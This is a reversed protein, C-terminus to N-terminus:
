ATPLTFYFTAGEGPESEVWIRGGHREVIKKCIALGIGTGPYEDGKHLRQFIKFIRDFYQPDIGLGNDRVSFVWQDEDQQADIHVRPPETGRFKVANDILHHFLQMIQNADASVAPLDGRTVMANNEHILPQLGNIVSDVAASCDTPMFTRGHKGIHAYAIQGNILERMRKAGDVAYSIFEDADQGIKGEYRRQLLQLYSVISRVPEQLHHSSVFFFQNLEANSSSLEAAKQALAEEARKREALEKQAAEYLRANAIAVAASVALSEALTQDEMGFRDPETDAIELVGIVSREVHLPVCLISRLALGTEQDVATLHREDTLADPVNLSVQNEAVWGAIGEGRKLRWGRVGDSRPGSAERCVLEGTERDLLWISCAAVELLQTAEQLLIGLVGELDITSTLAQNARNLLTLERNRQQLIEEIQKRNTIDRTIGVLRITEGAADALPIKTNSIWIRRGDQTTFPVENGILPRGSRLISQEEDYARQANKNPFFDFDGKGIAEQPDSIGLLEAQARNVRVFRSEADKFYIFDPISDMLTHLLHEEQILERTKTELQRNTEGAKKLASSWGQDYSWIVIGLCVVALLFDGGETLWYHSGSPDRIDHTIWGLSLAVGIATYTLISLAGGIIAARPGILVFVLVPLLVMWIRGSGSLGVKHLLFAGLSWNLILLLWARVHYGLGRWFTAAVAILWGAIFPLMDTLRELPSMGTDELGIYLMLMALFGMGVAGIM